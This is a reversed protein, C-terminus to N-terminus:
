ESNHNTNQLLITNENNTFFPTSDKNRKAVLIEFNEEVQKDKHSKLVEMGTTLVHM